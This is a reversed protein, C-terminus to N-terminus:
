LGLCPIKGLPNVLKKKRSYRSVFKGPRNQRFYLSLSSFNGSKVLGHVLRPFIGIQLLKLTTTKM